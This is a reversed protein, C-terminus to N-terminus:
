PAEEQPADGAAPAATEIIAVTRNDARFTATAVRRVDAATVRDLRDISRFLERWDGYLVQYDVLQSALGQNSALSRVLDAKARTKFRALEAATVDETKLREIEARLAAQVRDNGVGRAPVAYVVWLNPYKPGPLASFSATQVAIKQDRVLSRYLRSVRGNSLIDDIADYVPQDAGTDAPKHYGEFYFPQAPDRLVVTKEVAQPPEVTRLAPARPRAPIRGFYRDLLPIVEAARLDGVIATVLNAPAYYTQFFAEADTATISELDSMYGVTPQGYPHATFAVALFQELIRGVPRSEVRLRREEQVVAREQYFERFVPRLFRESELYAFLELRNAPLSYFFSTSDAGTSANMGVGGARDVIEDFAGPVVYAAADAQRREFKARLAELKEDGAPSAARAALRAAQWAQYAAEEAALAAREAEWDTTGIAPTGKFAMHEFMHALGTTGPVEQASGVDVQTAFSFVPAVPREVLIFTWGNAVRHVTTRAEFSALDQAGAPAAAAALLLAVAALRRRIM